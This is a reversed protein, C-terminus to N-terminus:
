ADRTCGQWSCICLRLIQLTTARRELLGLRVSRDGSKNRDDESRGLDGAQNGEAPMKAGLAFALTEPSELTDLGLWLTWSRWFPKWICGAPTNWATQPHPFAGSSSRPFGRTTLAFGVSEGGNESGAVAADRLEKGAHFSRDIIPKERRAGITRHLQSPLRHSPRLFGALRWAQSAASAFCSRFCKQPQSTAPQPGTKSAGELKGTKGM